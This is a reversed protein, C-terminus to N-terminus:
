NSERSDRKKVLKRDVNELKTKLSDRNKVRHTFIAQVNHAKLKVECIHRAHQTLTKYSTFSYRSIFFDILEVKSPHCTAPTM